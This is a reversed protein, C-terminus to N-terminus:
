AAQMMLGSSPKVSQVRQRMSHLAEQSVDWIGVILSGVESRSAAMPAPSWGIRAYVRTTRDDYVGVIQEIGSALCLECLGILLESSVMRYSTPGETEPHVCFRTCEWATPSEIDVPENFFGSFENSLMTPGTTPLLRLSGTLRGRSDVSVLYLPDHEEDYRDIERGNRVEVDWGLRDHFVSARARFMQDFAEPEADRSAGTLTRIMDEAGQMGVM